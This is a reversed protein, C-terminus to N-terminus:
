KAAPTTSEKEGASEKETEKETEKEPNRLGLGEVFKVNECLYDQVEYVLIDLAFEEETMGAEKWFEEATDYGYNKAYELKKAKILEDSVEIGEAKAIAEYVMEQKLYEKSAEEVSKMFDDKTQGILALYQDLKQSTMYYIYYEQYEAYEKKVEALRVSDYSVIKAGDMVVEIIDNYIQVVRLDDTLYKLMEDKTSLGLYDFNKKVLEDTFEPVITDMRAVLTIEFKVKKGKIKSDSYDKPVDLTIEYKEGPKKGIISDVFGPIDFGKDTLEINAGEKSQYEKDEFICKYNIKAVDDKKFTIGEKVENVTALSDLVSKLYDDIDEQPVTQLTADVEIGKYQGLEVKAYTREEKKKSNDDCAALSFISLACLAISLLRKKM